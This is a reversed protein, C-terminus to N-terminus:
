LSRFNSNIGKFIIIFQLNSSYYNQEWQGMIDIM